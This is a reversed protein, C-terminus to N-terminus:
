EYQKYRQGAIFFSVKSREQDFAPDCRLPPNMPNKQEKLASFLNTMPELTNEASALYRYM